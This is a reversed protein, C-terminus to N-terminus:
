IISKLCFVLIKPFNRSVANVGILNIPEHSFSNRELVREFIGIVAHFMDLRKQVTAINIKVLRVETFPKMFPIDGHTLNQCCQTFSFYYVTRLPIGM